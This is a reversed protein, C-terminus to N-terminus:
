PSFVGEAELAAIQEETYGLVRQLIAHAHQNPLPPATRVVGPTASLHGFPTGTITVPGARPHEVQAYVGRAKVQPHEVMEPVSRVRAAPVGAQTLVREVEDASLTAAWDSLAQRVFEPHACRAAYTALRLDEVLESRGIAGALAAWWEDRHADIAVYQEDAARYVACSPGHVLSENGQRSIQAGENITREINGELTMFLAEFLAIDIAQGQGTRDRHRLAALISFACLLGAYYDTISNGARTPPNHPFGTISAYGTRAQALIDYGRHHRYPGTQGFASVSAFIIRPNVARLVEYGVGMRDMTGPSFNEIVVDGVRVLEKLLEVGRPKALNLSMVEKNRDRYSGVPVLDPRQFRLGGGPANRREAASPEEIKIVEAGLDALLGTNYPQAIVTGLDIIRVDHLAGPM